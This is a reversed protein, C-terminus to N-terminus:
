RIPIPPTKSGPLTNAAGGNYTFTFRVKVQDVGIGYPFADYPASGTIAAWAAHDLAVKGSPQALVMNTVRGDTHVWCEIKVVGPTSLPPKAEQPVVPLWRDKTRGQVGTWYGKLNAQDEPTTRKVVEVTVIEPEPAAKKPAAKPPSGANQAMGMQTGIAMVAFSIALIGIQRWRM